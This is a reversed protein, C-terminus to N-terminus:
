FPCAVPTDVGTGNWDWSKQAADWQFSYCFGRTKNHYIIGNPTGDIWDIEDTNGGFIDGGTLSGDDAYLPMYNWLGTVGFATSTNRFYAFVVPRTSYGTMLASTAVWKVIGNAVSDKWCQDKWTNCGAPLQNVGSVKVGMPYVCANVGNTYVSPPTCVPPLAAAAVTFTTNVPVSAVV